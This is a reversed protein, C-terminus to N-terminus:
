PSYEVAAEIAAASPACMEMDGSHGTHALPNGFPLTCITGRDATVMLLKCTHTTGLPEPPHEEGEPTVM